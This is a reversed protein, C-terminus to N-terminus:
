PISVGLLQCRDLSHGACHVKSANLRHCSECTLKRVEALAPSSIHDANVLTDALLELRLISARQPHSVSLHALWERSVRAVSKLLGRDHNTAKDGLSIPSEAPCSQRYVSEM